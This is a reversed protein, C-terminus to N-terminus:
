PSCTSAWGNRIFGTNASRRSRMSMFIRKRIKRRSEADSRRSQSLLVSRMTSMCLRVLITEPTIAEELENVDVLGEKNIPLRTIRFGQEELFALPASVAPHEIASTIIHNGTRRNAMATGVLAWNDSETGGSTFFIEKEKVKLIKALTEQATRIYQEAEVGKQHMASPNGYHNVMLDCVLDATEQYVCTTASNDLYAEM